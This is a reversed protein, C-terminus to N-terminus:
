FYPNLVFIIKVSDDAFPGMKKHYKKKIKKQPQFLFMIPFTLNGFKWSPFGMHFFIFFVFFSRCAMFRIRRGRVSTLHTRYLAEFTQAVMWVLIWSSFPGGLWFNFFFTHRLIFISFEVGKKLGERLLNWGVKCWLLQTM